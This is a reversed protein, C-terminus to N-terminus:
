IRCCRCCCPRSSSSSFSYNNFFLYFSLMHFADIVEEVPDAFADGDRGVGGDELQLARGRARESNGLVVEEYEKGMGRPKIGGPSLIHHICCLLHLGFSTSRGDLIQTNNINGNSFKVNKGERRVRGGKSGSNSRINIEKSNSGEEILYRAGVCSVGLGM